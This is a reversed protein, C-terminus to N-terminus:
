PLSIVINKASLGRRNLELAGNIKALGRGVFHPEPAPVFHKKVLAPVLFNTFVQVVCSEPDALGVIMIFKIEIGTSM